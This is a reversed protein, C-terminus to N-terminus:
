LIALSCLGDFASNEIWEITNDELLRHSDCHNSSKRTADLLLQMCNPSRHYGMSCAM